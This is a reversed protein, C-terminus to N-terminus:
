IGLVKVDTIRDKHREVFALFQTIAVVLDAEIKDTWYYDEIFVSNFDTVVYEARTIDNGSKRLCYLYSKHQLSNNYKPWTYNGTTKLEFVTDRLVYDAYGYLEVDGFPTSIIARNYVQMLAGSIRDVIFDAIHKPYLYSNGQHEIKYAPMDGDVAVIEDGQALRDILTNFASGKLMAENAPSPIRNIRGIMEDLTMTDSKLFYLYTDILTPYISIM